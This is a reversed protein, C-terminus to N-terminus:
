GKLLVCIRLVSFGATKKDVLGAVGLGIGAIEDDRVDEIAELLSVFVEESSSKKIKRIIEGEDSVLAVRLNTGGLDIGIAYKM